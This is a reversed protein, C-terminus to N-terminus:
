IHSDSYFGALERVRAGAVFPLLNVARSYRIVDFYIVKKLILANSKPMKIERVWFSIKPHSSTLQMMTLQKVLVKLECWPKLRTLERHSLTGM